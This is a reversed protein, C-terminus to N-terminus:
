IDVILNGAFRLIADAWGAQIQPELLVFLWLFGVQALAFAWIAPGLGALWAALAIAAAYPAGPLDDFFNKWIWEISTVAVLGLTTLMYAAARWHRVLRSSQWVTRVLEFCTRRFHDM